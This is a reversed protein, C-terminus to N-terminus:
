ICKSCTEITNKYAQRVNKEELDFGRNNIRCRVLASHSANRHHYSMDYESHLLAANSFLFIMKNLFFAGDFSHMSKIIFFVVLLVYM